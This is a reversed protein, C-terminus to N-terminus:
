AGVAQAVMIPRLAISSADSDGTSETEQWCVGIEPSIGKVALVSNAHNIEQTHTHKVQGTLIPCCAESVLSLTESVLIVYAGIDPVSETWTRDLYLRCV